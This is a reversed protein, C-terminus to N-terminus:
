LDKKIKTQVYYMFREHLNEDYKSLKKEIIKEIQVIIEKIDNNLSKKMQPTVDVTKENLMKEYAKLVKDDKM